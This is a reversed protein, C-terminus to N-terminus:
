CFRDPLPFISNAELVRLQRSKELERFDSDLILMSLQECTGSENISPRNVLTCTCSRNYICNEVKCPTAVFIKM